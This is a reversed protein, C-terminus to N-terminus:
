CLDDDRYRSHAENFEAEPEPQYAPRRLAADALDYANAVPAPYGEGPVGLESKIAQLADRLTVVHAAAKWVQADLAAREAELAAIYTGMLELYDARSNHGEARLNKIVIKTNEITVKM